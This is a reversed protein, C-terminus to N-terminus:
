QRTAEHEKRTTHCAGCGGGGGDGRGGGGGREGTRVRQHRGARVGMGEELLLRRAEGGRRGRADPKRSGVGKGLLSIGGEGGDGEATDSEKGREEEVEM